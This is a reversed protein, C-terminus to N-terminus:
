PSGSLRGPTRGQSPELIKTVLGTLTAVQPGTLQGVVERAVDDEVAEAWLHLELGESTLVLRISRRDSENPERKILGRVVLSELTESIAPATVGFRKALETASSVGGHIHNLIRMQRYGLSLDDNLARQELRAILQALHMLKRGAIVRQQDELSVVDVEEVRADSRAEMREDYLRGVGTVAGRCGHDM